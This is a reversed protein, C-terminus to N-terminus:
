LERRQRARVEAFRHDWWRYYVLVAVAAVPVLFLACCAVQVMYILCLDLCLDHTVILKAEFGPTAIVVLLASFLDMAPHLVVWHEMVDTVFLLGSSPRDTPALEDLHLEILTIVLYLYLPLVPLVLSHYDLTNWHESFFYLWHQLRASTYPFAADFCLWCSSLVTLFLRM